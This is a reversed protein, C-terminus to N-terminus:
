TKAINTALLIIADRLNQLVLINKIKTPKLIFNKRRTDPIMEQNIRQLLLDHLEKGDLGVYFISKTFMLYKGSQYPGTPYLLHGMLKSKYTGSVYDFHCSM